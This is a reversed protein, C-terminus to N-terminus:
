LDFLTGALISKAAALMVVYYVNNLLGCMFFGAAVSRARPLALQPAAERTRVAEGEASPRRETASERSEAASRARGTPGEGSGLM